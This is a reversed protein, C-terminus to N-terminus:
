SWSPWTLSGCGGGSLLSARGRGPLTALRHGPLLWLVSVAHTAPETLCARGNAGFLRISIGETRLHPFTSPGRSGVAEPSPQGAM